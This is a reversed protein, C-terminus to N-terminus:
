RRSAAEILDAAWNVVVTVPRGADGADIPRIFLFRQGDNTVSYQDIV